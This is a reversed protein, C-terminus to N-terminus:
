LEIPRFILVVAMVVFIMADAAAGWYWATVAMVMGLTYSAIATGRLNGMGGVIVVAFCLTVIRFGMYPHITSIPGYLIGGLSALASGLIFVIAFYKDIDIGLSLVAERDALGAVVIKGIISKKFFISLSIFILFSLGIIILRYLPIELAFFSVSTGVPDSIPVPSAGWIWKILDVGILLVAYSAIIAYDISKGYLRRIVFKEIVYSVPLSALIALIAAIVFNGKAVPLLAFLAYAGVAYVLGHAFNVIRMSGFTLSFGISVIYLIGGITLGYAIVEFM